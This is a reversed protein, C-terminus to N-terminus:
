TAYGPIQDVLVCQLSVFKTQFDTRITPNRDVCGLFFLIHTVYVSFFPNSSSNLFM